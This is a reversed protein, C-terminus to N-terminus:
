PLFLLLIVKSTFDNFLMSKLTKQHTYEPLFCRIKLTRWVSRKQILFEDSEELISRIELRSNCGEEVTSYGDTFIPNKTSRPLSGLICCKRVNQTHM